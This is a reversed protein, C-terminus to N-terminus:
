RTLTFICSPQFLFEFKIKVKALLLSDFVPAYQDVADDTKKNNSENKANPGDLSRQNSDDPSGHDEDCLFCRCLIVTLLVTFVFLNEAKQFNM